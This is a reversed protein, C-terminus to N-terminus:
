WQLESSDTTNSVRKGSSRFGRRGKSFRNWQRNLSSQFKSGEHHGDDVDKKSADSGTAELKDIRHREKFKKEFGCLGSWKHITKSDYVHLM